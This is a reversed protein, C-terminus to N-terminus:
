HCHCTYTRYIETVQVSPSSLVEGVKLCYIALQQRTANPGNQHSTIKDYPLDEKEDNLYHQSVSGLTKEGQYKEIKRMFDLVDLYLRGPIIPM